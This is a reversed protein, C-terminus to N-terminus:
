GSRASRHRHEARAARPLPRHVAREHLALRDAAARIGARRRRPRRDARGQLGAGRRPLARAGRRGAVDRARVAEAAKVHERMREEIRPFDAESVTVGPPFEFDYYFGDEIPPGISIKVGEYLEMVAAALVHAADHRILELASTAAASPSSRSRPATPCRARSTASRGAAGATTRGAGRAGRAGTGPRDGRGRRRGHRRRGARAGQRGPTHRHGGDCRLSDERADPPAGSRTTASRPARRRARRRAREILAREAAQIDVPMNNHTM